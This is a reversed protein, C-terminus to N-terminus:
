VARPLASIAPRLPWRLCTGAGAALAIARMHFLM